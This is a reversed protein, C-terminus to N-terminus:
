KIMSHYLEAYRQLMLDLSFEREVKRRGAEGFSRGLDRQRFLMILKEAIAADDKPKVLFGTMGEEVLEPLAGVNTAVIPLRACMAELATMPLGESLSTLAFVDMVRLLRPVDHRMGTLIVRHSLEHEAIFQKLAALQDGDGVILLTSSERLERPLRGFARVLTITDKTRDLRAVTGIVFDEVAMGLERRAAQGDAQTFQDIRRPDIGNPIVQMRGIPFGTERCYYSRVENSIAFVQDAVHYLFRRALRRKLPEFEIYPFNRGHESHVLRCRRNLLTIIRALSADIGTWNQTHIIDPQEARIVRAIKFPMLHDAEVGKGLDVTRAEAKLFQAAEGRRTICCVTQEFSSQDLGNVVDIVVRELGGVGLSDLVHLIKIRRERV